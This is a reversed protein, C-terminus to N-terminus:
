HKANGPAGEREHEWARHPPADGHEGLQGIADVIVVDWARDTPSPKM